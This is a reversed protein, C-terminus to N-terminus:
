DLSQLSPNRDIIRKKEQIEKKFHNHSRQKLHEKRQPISRMTYKGLQATSYDGPKNISQIETSNCIPCSVFTNTNKYYYFTRNQRIVMRYYTVFFEHGQDCKFNNM